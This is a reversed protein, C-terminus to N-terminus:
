YQSDSKKKQARQTKQPWNEPESEGQNV